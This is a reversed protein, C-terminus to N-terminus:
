YNIGLPLPKPFDSCAEGGGASTLISGLGTLCTYPKAVPRLCRSQGSMKALVVVPRGETKM